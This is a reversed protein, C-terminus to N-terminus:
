LWTYQDQIFRCKRAQEEGHRIGLPHNEDGALVGLQESLRPIGSDNGDDGDFIRDARNQQRDHRRCQPDRASNGGVLTWGRPWYGWM